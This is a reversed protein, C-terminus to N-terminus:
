EQLEKALAAAGIWSRIADELRDPAEAFLLHGGHILQAHSNPAKAILALQHHPPVVPDETGILALVPTELDPLLPGIDAHIVWKACARLAMPDCALLQERVADIIGVQALASSAWRFGLQFREPTSLWLKLAARFASPGLLENSLLKALPDITRGRQGCTLAGIAVVSHVLEPFRHAFLLSVMGGTSHGVLVAGAGGSATRLREAIEDLWQMETLKQIVEAETEGPSHGPLDFALAIVGENGLRERM